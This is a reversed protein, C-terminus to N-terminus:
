TMRRKMGRIYVDSLPSPFIGQNPLSPMWIPPLTNAAISSGSTCSASATMFFAASIDSSGRRTVMAVPARSLAIPYGCNKRPNPAAGNSM